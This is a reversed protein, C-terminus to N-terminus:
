GKDNCIVVGRDWQFKLCGGVGAALGEKWSVKSGQSCVFRQGWWFRFAISGIVKVRVKVVM